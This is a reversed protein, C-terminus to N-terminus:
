LKTKSMLPILFSGAMFYHYRHTLAKEQKM